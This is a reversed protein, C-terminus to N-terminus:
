VKARSNEYQVTTASSVHFKWGREIIRAQARACAELIYPHLLTQLVVAGLVIDSREVWASWPLYVSFANMGFM